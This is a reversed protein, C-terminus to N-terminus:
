NIKSIEMELLSYVKQKAFNNIQQEPQNSDTVSSKIASMICLAEKASCHWTAFYNSSYRM